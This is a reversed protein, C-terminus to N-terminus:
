RAIKRGTKGKDSQAASPCVQLAEVRDVEKVRAPIERDAPMMFRMRYTQSDWFPIYEKLSNRSPGHPSGRATCFVKKAFCVWKQLIRFRECALKAWAESGEVEVPSRLM